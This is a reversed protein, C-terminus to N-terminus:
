TKGNYVLFGTEFVSSLVNGIVIMCLFVTIERNYNNDPLIGAEM